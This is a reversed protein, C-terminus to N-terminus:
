ATAVKPRTAWLWFAGASSHHPIKFKQALINCIALHAKFLYIRHERKLGGGDSM